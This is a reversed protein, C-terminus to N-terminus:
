SHVGHIARSNLRNEPRDLRKRISGTGTLGVGVAHGDHTAALTRFFHDIPARERREEELRSLRLHTDITSINANPPIVYVRNPELLTIPGSDISQVGLPL